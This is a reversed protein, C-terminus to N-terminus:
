VLLQCHLQVLSPAPPSRDRLEDARCVIHASPISLDDISPLVATMLLPPSHPGGPGIQRPQDDRAEHCRCPHTGDGGRASDGDQLGARCSDDQVDEVACCAREPAVAPAAAGGRVFEVVGNIGCCCAAPTALALYAALVFHICAGHM